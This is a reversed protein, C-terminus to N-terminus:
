TSRTAGTTLDGRRCASTGWAPTGSRCSRGDTHYTLSVGLEAYLEAKNAADANALVDVIDRLAEILVRTQSKTLKSGPVFLKM